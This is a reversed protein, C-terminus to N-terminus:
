CMEFVLYRSLSLPTDTFPAAQFVSERDSGLSTVDCETDSVAAL